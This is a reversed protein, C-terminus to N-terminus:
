KQPMSPRKRDANNWDEPPFAIGWFRPQPTDFEIGVEASGKESEKQYIVRCQAESSTKKNIILISAKLETSTALILRAGHANVSTTRTEARFVKGSIEHGFIEVPVDISVRSSRRKGSSPSNKPQSEGAPAAPSVNSKVLAM